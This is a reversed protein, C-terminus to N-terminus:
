NANALYSRFFSRERKVSCLDTILTSNELPKYTDDTKPLCLCYVCLWRNISSSFRQRILWIRLKSLISECDWQEKPTEEIRTFREDESSSKKDERVNFRVRAM